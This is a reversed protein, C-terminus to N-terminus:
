EPYELLPLSLARAAKQLDINLTALPLGTRQAVDLYAADYGTLRQTLALSLIPEWLRSNERREIRISLKALESLFDQRLQSTIRGRREALVLVNPIEFPWLSPAVAYITRLNALVRRTYSM